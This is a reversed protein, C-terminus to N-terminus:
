DGHKGKKDALLALSAKNTMAFEQSFRFVRLRM